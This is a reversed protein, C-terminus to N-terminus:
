RASRPLCNPNHSLRSMEALHHAPLHNHQYKDGKLNLLKLRQSLHPPQQMRLVAWTAKVKDWEMCKKLAVKMVTIVLSPLLSFFIITHSHIWGPFHLIDQWLIRVWTKVVSTCATRYHETFNISCSVSCHSELDSHFVAALLKVVWHDNSQGKEVWVIIM